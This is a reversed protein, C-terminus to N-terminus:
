NEVQSCAAPDVANWGHGLWNSSWDWKGGYWYLYRVYLSGNSDRYVTGWFFVCKGKWEEPILHPNALLYDLVCANLVPMGSLEKRLDTGVIRGTKQSESLYLSIKEPNWELQGGKRHEEISWNNPIFSAIDTDIIHKTTIVECEGRLFKKAGDIGGLKNIIAEVSVDEVYM